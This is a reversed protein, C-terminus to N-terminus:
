KLQYFALVPLKSQCESLSRPPSELITGKQSDVIWSKGIKDFIRCIFHYSGYYIIGKLEYSRNLCSFDLNQSIIIEQTLMIFM